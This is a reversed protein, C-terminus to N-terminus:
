GEWLPYFDYITIFGRHTDCYHFYDKWFKQLHKPQGEACVVDFDKCDERDYFKSAEEYTGVFRYGSTHRAVWLSQTKIEEISVKM